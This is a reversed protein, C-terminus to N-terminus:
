VFLPVPQPLDLVPTPVQDILCILSDGNTGPNFVNNYQIKVQTDLYDSLQVEQTEGVDLYDQTQSSCPLPHEIGWSEKIGVKYKYKNAKHLKERDFTAVGNADTTATAIESCTTKSGNGIFTQTEKIELLSVVAGAVYENLAPNFVKVTITTKKKCTTFVMTLTFSFIFLSLKM